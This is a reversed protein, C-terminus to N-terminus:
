TDLRERSFFVDVAKKLKDLGYCSVMDRRWEEPLRRSFRGIARKDLIAIIGRDRESRILRGACQALTNACPM